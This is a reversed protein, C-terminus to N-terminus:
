DDVVTLPNVCNVELTVIEVTVIVDAVIDFTVTVVPLRVIGYLGFPDFPIFKVSDPNEEPNTPM